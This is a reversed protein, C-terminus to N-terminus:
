VDKSGDKPNAAEDMAEDTKRKRRSSAPIKFRAKLWDGAKKVNVIIWDLGREIYVLIKEMEQDVVEGDMAHTEEAPQDIDPNENKRVQNRGLYYVTLGGLVLGILGGQFLTSFRTSAITAELAQIHQEPTLNEEEGTADSPASETPETEGAAPPEGNANKAGDEYGPLSFGAHLSDTHCAVCTSTSITFAHGTPVIGDDPVVEPPIVLSHCDVCGIGKQIHLDELYDGMEDRHCNLCLEDPDEFLSEQNHPNHCDMCGVGATSHGTLRWEGLTTTHCVGCYDTDARIPVVAPPHEEVADGHCAECQVGESTFTNTTSQYGTTHCALCEGPKGLSNWRQSFEEDDFAHAHSSGMWADEIDPHCEACDKPESTPGQTPETGNAPVPTGTSQARVPSTTAGAIGVVLAMSMLGVLLGCFLIMLAHRNFVSQKKMKHDKPKILGSEM